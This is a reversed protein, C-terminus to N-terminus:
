INCRGKEGDVLEERLTAQEDEIAPDEPTVTGKDSPDIRECGDM